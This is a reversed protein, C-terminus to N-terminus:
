AAGGNAAPLLPAFMEINYFGSPDTRRGTPRAAFRRHAGGPEEAEQLARGRVRAPDPADAWRAQRQDGALRQHPAHRPDLLQGGGAQAHIRHSPPSCAGAAAVPALALAIALWRQRLAFAFLPRYLRDLWLLFRNDHGHPEEHGERHETKPDVRLV